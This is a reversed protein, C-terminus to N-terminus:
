RVASSRASARSAAVQFAPPYRLSLSSEEKSLVRTAEWRARAL